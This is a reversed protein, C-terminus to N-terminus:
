KQFAEELFLRFQNFARKASVPNYAAGSKADNGALPDTFSHVTKSFVVFQWDVNAAKMESQFAAVQATPVYPDDAGAFVLVKGKINKADALNPTDLNGHFSVVGKLPAGSRALELATGGGFCFGAAVINASDVHALTKAFNLGVTAHDRLLGRNAKLAGSLKAADDTTQPRIGKGYVDLAVATYGWGAILDAYRQEFPGLGKWAHFLVVTPLKGRASKPYAYYGQYTGDSGKYEINQTVISAANVGVSLWVIALIGTLGWKKM